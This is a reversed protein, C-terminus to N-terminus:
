NKPTLIIFVTIFRFSLRRAVSKSLPNTLVASSRENAISFGRVIARLGTINTVSIPAASVVSTQIMSMKPPM